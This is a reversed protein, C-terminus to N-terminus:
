LTSQLVGFVAHQGDSVLLDTLSIGAAKGDYMKRVHIHMGTLYFDVIMCQICM